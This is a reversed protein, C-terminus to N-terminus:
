PRMLFFSHIAKKVLAMTGVLRVFKGSEMNQSSKYVEVLRM